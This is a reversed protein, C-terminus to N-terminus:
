SMIKKYNLENGRNSQLWVGSDFLSIFIKGKSGTKDFPTLKTSRLVQIKFQELFEFLKM